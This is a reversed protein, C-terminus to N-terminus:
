PRGQTLLQLRLGLIHNFLRRSVWWHHFREINLLRYRNLLLRTADGRLLAGAASGRYDALLILRTLVESFLADALVAVAAEKRMAIM